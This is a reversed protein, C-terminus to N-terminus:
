TSTKALIPFGSILHSDDDDDDDDDDDTIGHFM